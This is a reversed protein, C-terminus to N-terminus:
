RDLVRASSFTSLHHLQQKLDVVQKQLTTLEGATLSPIKMRGEAIQLQRRVATQQLGMWFGRAVETPNAPMRALMWGSVLAEEGPSLGTMFVNLSAADDPRLDSELIQVLLESDPTQSLVERWSEHLLSERADSDRLAVLCLMAIDHRPAVVPAAARVPEDAAFRQRSPKALLAEFEPAAVGIRSSVKSAIESRMMPDPVRAVTEALRRALQMKVGLSSLDSAAAEREIWYDFFDRADRIRGEFEERGKSRVISDPDEGPPMEAVRVILNNALLSELSREAAKQGA